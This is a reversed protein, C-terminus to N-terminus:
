SDIWTDEVHVGYGEYRYLYTAKGGYVLLYM